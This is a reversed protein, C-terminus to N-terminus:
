KSAFCSGILDKHYDSINEHPRIPSVEIESCKIKSAKEIEKFCLKIARITIFIEGNFREHVTVTDRPRVIAPRSSEVQLVRNEYRITWDNQVRREHIICFIDNLNLGDVPKHLNEPSKAPVAFKKNHKAIYVEHLFKNAEDISKIKALALEKVLRDQDTKFSREVRGKAQPSRAHILRSGVMEVMRGFQTVKDGEDNGTNVRYTSHNDLYLAVPIGHQEIYKRFAGGVGKTSEGEIFEMWLFASTADDIFKVLAWREGLGVIWEHFSVDTQVLEGYFSKRERMKRQKGVKKSKQWLGNDLLLVRLTERNISIADLEKLKEAMFVPGFGLYKTRALDLIKTKIEDNYKIVIARGRNKHILGEAGQTAFRKSKRRVQRISLGLQLAAATQTISKNALKEFIAIQKVEKDSM